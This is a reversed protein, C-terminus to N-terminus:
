IKKLHFCSCIQAALQRHMMLEIDTETSFLISFLSFCSFIFLKLRLLPHLVGGNVKLAQMILLFIQPAFCQMTLVLVLGQRHDSFILTEPRRPKAHTIAFVRFTKMAVKELKSIGEKLQLCTEFTFRRM